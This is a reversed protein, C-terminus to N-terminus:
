HLPLRCIRSTSLRSWRSRRYNRNYNILYPLSSMIWQRLQLQPLRKIRMTLETCSNYIFCLPREYLLWKPVLISVHDLKKVVLEDFHSFNWESLDCRHQFEQQQQLLEVRLNILQLKIRPHLYRHLNRKLRLM